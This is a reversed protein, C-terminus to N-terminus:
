STPSSPGPTHVVVNLLLLELVDIALHHLALLGSHVPLLAFVMSSM